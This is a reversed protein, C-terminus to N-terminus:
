RLDSSQKLAENPLRIYSAARHRQGAFARWRPRWGSTAYLGISPRSRSDAPAHARDLVLEGPLTPRHESISAWMRLTRPAGITLGADGVIHRPRRQRVGFNLQLAILLLARPAREM